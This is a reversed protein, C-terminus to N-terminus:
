NVQVVGNADVKIAVIAGGFAGYGVVSEADRSEFETKALAIIASGFCFGIVLGIIIKKM